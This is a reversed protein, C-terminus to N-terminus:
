KIKAFVPALTASHMAIRRHFTLSPLLPFILWVQLLIGVLFIATQKIVNKHGFQARFNLTEALLAYLSYITIFATRLFVNINQKLVYYRVYHLLYYFSITESREM